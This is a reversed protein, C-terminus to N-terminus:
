FDDKSQNENDDKNNFLKSMEEKIQKMSVRKDLLVFRQFILAIVLTLPMLPTFPATWFAFIGAGIGMLYPNRFIWGLIFVGSGSLITWVIIFSIIGRISGLKKILIWMALFFKKWFNIFKKLMNKM